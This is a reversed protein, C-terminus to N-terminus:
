LRGQPAIAGHAALAMPSVVAPPEYPTGGYDVTTDFPLFGAALVLAKKIRKM